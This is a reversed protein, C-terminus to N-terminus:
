RGALNRGASYSLQVSYIAITLSGVSDTGTQRGQRRPFRRGPEVHFRGDRKRMSVVMEEWSVSVAAEM